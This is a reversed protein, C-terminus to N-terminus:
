PLASISLSRRLHASVNAAKPTCTADAANCGTSTSSSLSAAGCSAALFSAVSWRRAVRPHAKFLDSAARMVPRSHPAASIPDLATAEERLNAALHGGAARYTRRRNSHAAEGAHRHVQVRADRAAAALACLGHVRGPHAAAASWRRKSQPPCRPRHRAPRLTHQASEWQPEARCLQGKPSCLAARALTGGAAPLRGQPSVQRPAGLVVFAREVPPGAAVVMAVGAPPCQARRRRPQRTAGM